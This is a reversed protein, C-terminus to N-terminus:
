AEKATGSAHHEGGQPQQQMRHRRRLLDGVWRWQMRIWERRPLEREGNVQRLRDLLEGVNPFWGDRRAMQRLLAEVRPDVRGDRVFGKGFHTAVICWGGEQELRAQREPALLAVFDDVNDADAASFWFRVLPRRPDRYPMTPNIRRLNLEDFTLNRGYLMHRACLDGWWHASRPEHGRFIPVEPSRGVLFRVMPDDFRAAGWYVNELNNAHNVHIHPYFGFADRFRELAAITRERLSSQMTAGHWTLEFGRAQLERCFDLYHPDELTESGAFDGAGEPCACPWVTKTARLGLEALLDYVPKVNAVTAVDTDDLITFAFRRDGPFLPTGM